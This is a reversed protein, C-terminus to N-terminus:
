FVMKITSYVKPCQERAIAGYPQISGLTINTGKSLYNWVHIVYSNKIEKMVSDRVKEDTTFYKSWQRWHIPSFASQPYVTFDKCKHEILDSVKSAQCYKKLSRTIVGPGNWAWEDGKFTQRLDEVALNAVEHNHSFSIIASSVFEASEVGAFNVMSEFSRLAIVDLDLYIGGYKWLLVYRLIDSIHTFPYKSTKHKGERFWSQLPTGDFFTKTSIHMMKVNNYGKLIEVHEEPYKTELVPSPFILYVNSHPNMKAASEIACAQRYNLKLGSEQCSTEVFFISTNIPIKSEPTLEELTNLTSYDYCKIQESEKTVFTSVLILDTKSSWGKIYWYFFLCIICVLIFCQKTKSGNAKM